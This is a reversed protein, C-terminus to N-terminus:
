NEKTYQTIWYTNSIKWLLSLEVRSCCASTFSLRIDLTQWARERERERKRERERERREREKIEFDDRDNMITSENSVQTLHTSWEWEWHSFIYICFICMLNQVWQACLSCIFNSLLHKIGEATPFVANSLTLKVLKVLNFHFVHICKTQHWGASNYLTWGKM